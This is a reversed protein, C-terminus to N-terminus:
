GELGKIEKRGWSSPSKSGNRPQNLKSPQGLRRRLDSHTLSHSYCTQICRNKRADTFHHYIYYVISAVPAANIQQRMSQHRHEHARSTLRNSTKSKNNSFRKHKPLHLQEAPSFHASNRAPSRNKMGSIILCALDFARFPKEGIEFFM